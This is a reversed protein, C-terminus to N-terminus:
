EFEHARQMWAIRDKKAADELDMIFKKSLKNTNDKFDKIEGRFRQIEKYAKRMNPPVNLREDQIRKIRAEREAVGDASDAGRASSAAQMKGTEKDIVMTAGASRKLKEMM